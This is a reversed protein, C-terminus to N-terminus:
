SRKCSQQFRAIHLEGSAHISTMFRFHTRLEVHTIPNVAAPSNCRAAVSVARQGVGMGPGTGPLAGWPATVM